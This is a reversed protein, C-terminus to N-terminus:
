SPHLLFFAMCEYSILSLPNSTMCFMMRRGGMIFLRPNFFTFPKFHNVSRLIKLKQFFTAPNKEWPNLFYLTLFSGHIKISKFTQILM